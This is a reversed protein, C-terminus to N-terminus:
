KCTVKLQASALYMFIYVFYFSVFINSSHVLLFRIKFITIAKLLSVKETDVLENCRFPNLRWLNPEFINLYIVVSDQLVVGYFSMDINFRIKVRVCLKLAQLYLSIYFVPFCFFFPAGNLGLMSFHLNLKDRSDNM